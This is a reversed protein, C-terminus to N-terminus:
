MLMLHQAIKDTIHHAGMGVGAALLGAQGSGGALQM